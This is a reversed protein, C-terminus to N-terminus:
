SLGTFQELWRLDNEFFLRLDGIGFRLMTLREVGLGFAFGRFRDADYDVAKFVNPHVMGCGLVELWGSHSCIRCGIGACAVCQIDVEASPETFTFYSPRFRVALQDNRFFACLFAILIGKLNAFSVSEDVWLGELQHFMPTHTLDMDWRYVRGPAIIRLPPQHSRMYRIQVPSTHTRLVINEEIYFTDHMARAPHDSGINLATFNHEDDEVEPGVAIAFGARAFFDTIEQLIITVPHLSGKGLGIGPLTVDISEKQLAHAIAQERLRAKAESLAAEIAAKARNLLAGQRKKDDGALTKLHAFAKTLLGQKGLYLAKVQELEADSQVAVFDAKARAVVEDVASLIM